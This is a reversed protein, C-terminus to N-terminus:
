FWPSPWVEQQIGQTKGVEWNYALPAKRLWQLEFNCCNNNLDQKIENWQM